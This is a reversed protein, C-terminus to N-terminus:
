RREWIAVKGFRYGGAFYSGDPSFTLSIFSENGARGFFGLKRGDKLRYLSVGTTWFYSLQAYPSKPRGLGLWNQVRSLWIRWHHTKHDTVAVWESCPAFKPSRFKSTVPLVRGQELQGDTLRWVKVELGEGYSAVSLREKDPFTLFALTRPSIPFHHDASKSATQWSWVIVSGESGIALRQGDPSFALHSVRGKSLTEGMLTGDDVRWLFVKAGDKSGKDFGFRFSAAALFNGDPSFAVPEILLLEKDGATFRRVLKGDSVQFLRVSGDSYSIALVSGNPSFALSLTQVSSIPFPLVGPLQRRKAKVTFSRVRKGDAVRWLKVSGEMPSLTALLQGDPSFAVAQVHGQHAIFVRRLAFPSSFHRYCIISVVAACIVALALFRVRRFMARSCKPLQENQM